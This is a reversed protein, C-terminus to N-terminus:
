IREADPEGEDDIGDRASRRAIPRVAPPRDRTTSALEDITEGALKNLAKLRALLAESATLKAFTPHAQTLDLVARLEGAILEAVQNVRAQDFIRAM